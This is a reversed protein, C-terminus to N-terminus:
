HLYARWYTADRVVSGPRHANYDTYIEALAEWEGVAKLPDYRHTAYDPTAPLPVGTFTDQQYANPVLRWGRDEYYTYTTPETPYFLALECRERRLASLALDLLHDAHQQLQADMAEPRTGIGWLHGTRRPTGTTDRLNRIWYAIAALLTGDPAQAVFAREFRQPDSHFAARMTAPNDDYAASWLALAAAEDEPRLLRYVTSMTNM